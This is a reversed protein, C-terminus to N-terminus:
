AGGAAFGAIESALEPFIPLSPNVYSDRQAAPSADVAKLVHNMGDLVLLRADARAAALREADAVSVQIDTTGQVILVEPASLARVEAAPDYKLWSIIYDQVSPRFIAALEQPVDDVREGRELSSLISLARARLTPDGLNKTLQERLVEGAPRGAGALSVFADVPARRAAVMGVLSGESHGVLTVRSVRHDARLADVFLAADDAGMEFRLDAESPAGSKSAGIGAKDYRLSGVGRDVLAQSLLRYPQAALTPQNGERDTPGSGAVILAVPHPGCGSPLVLTGELAGRANKVSITETSAECVAPAGAAPEPSRPSGGTGTCAMALFALLPAGLVYPIWANM